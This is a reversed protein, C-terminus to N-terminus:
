FLATLFQPLGRARGTDVNIEVSMGTRLPPIDTGSTDIRVRLPIRQVVKVWNGSTNQAPLLQFEQAGAPSISEVTGHWQVNPYSDVSV